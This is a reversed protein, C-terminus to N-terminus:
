FCSGQKSKNEDAFGGNKKTYGPVTDDDNSEGGSDELDNEDSIHEVLNGEEDVEVGM